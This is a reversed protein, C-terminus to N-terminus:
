DQSIRNVTKDKGGQIREIKSQLRSHRHLLASRELPSMFSLAEFAEEVWKLAELHDKKQHEYFKALEEYPFLERGREVSIMEMWISAAREMQKERKMALSLSKLVEWERSDKCCRLADHFCEIAQRRRGQGSLLKGLAYSEIWERRSATRPNHVLEHIRAALTVLSLVDMRNHFFVRHIESGNGSALYDFYIYPILESPVDDERHIGLVSSELTSLRCDEYAGRWIRRSPFLLDYNPLDEFPSEMRSLIFRTELLPIDFRKGNFTVLFRSKQALDSLCWLMAKEESFDRLFFQRTVFRSGEFYGVGVLFALTGTGGTLGTTEVDLFLTQAFDLDTLGEDRSVWSVPYTPIEMVRDLLMEGHRYGSGYIQERMFLIGFPTIVEEGEIWETIPRARKDIRRSRRPEVLRELRKRLDSIIEEQAKQEGRSISDLRELREKLDM